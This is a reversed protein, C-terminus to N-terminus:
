LHAQNNSRMFRLLQYWVSSRDKETQERSCSAKHTEETQSRRLQLDCAISCFGCMCNVQLLRHFVMSNNLIDAISLICYILCYNLRILNNKTYHLVHTLHQKQAEFLGVCPIFPKLGMKGEEWCASAWSYNVYNICNQKCQQENESPQRTIGSHTQEEILIISINGKNHGLHKQKITNLAKNTEHTNM